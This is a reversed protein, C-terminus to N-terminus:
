YNLHNFINEGRVTNRTPGQRVADSYTKYVTHPQSWSWIKNSYGDNFRDMGPANPRRYQMNQRHMQRQKAQYRTQRCWQHDDDELYKPPETVVLQASRLINVVSATYAKIGSPGFMHIGDYKRKQICRYRAERVGGSCFLNHEGIFIREKIPCTTKLSALTDNFIKSLLPKFSPPTSQVDDFRPIQKMIIIKKVEPHKEVAEVVATFLNNAAVVAQQKFYETYEGNYNNETKMNTIDVSGSQVILVDTKEKSLEASVVDAFNKAPFRAAHKGGDEIDDYVASYARIAKVKANMANRITPLHLNGSISDGVVLVNQVSQTVPTTPAAPTRSTAPPPPPPGSPRRTASSDLPPPSPQVTTHQTPLPHESMAKILSLEEKMKNQNELLSKMFVKIEVMDDRLGDIQKATTHLLIIDEHSNVLHDELLNNDITTFECYRCTFQPQTHHDKMHEQLLYFHEFVFDCFNCPFPEDSQPIPKNNGHVSNRHKKLQINLRCKYACQDCQLANQDKLAIDIKTDKHILQIHVDLDEKTNSIHNCSRCKFHDDNIHSLIELVSLGSFECIHCPYKYPSKCKHFEHHFKTPFTKECKDCDLGDPLVEKNIHKSEMHEELISQNTAEFECIYCTFIINGTHTMMHKRLIDADLAGYECKECQIVGHKMQM